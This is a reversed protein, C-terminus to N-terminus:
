NNIKVQLLEYIGRYYDGDPQIKGLQTKHLYKIPVRDYGLQNCAELRHHGQVVLAEGHHVRIQIRPVTDPDERLISEKMGSVISQDVYSQTRYLKDIDYSTGEITQSPNAGGEGAFYQLNMKMLPENSKSKNRVRASSAM